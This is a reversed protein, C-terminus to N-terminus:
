IIVYLTLPDPPALLDYAAQSITEIRTVTDSAIYGAGPLMLQTRAVTVATATRSVTVATNVRSVATM